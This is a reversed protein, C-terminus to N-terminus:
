FGHKIFNQGGITGGVGHVDPAARVARTDGSTSVIKVVDKQWLCAYLVQIKPPQNLSPPKEM